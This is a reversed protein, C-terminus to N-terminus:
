YHNVHVNIHYKECVLIYLIEFNNQGQIRRNDYKVFKIMLLLWTIFLFQTVHTNIHMCKLIGRLEIKGYICFAIVIRYGPRNLLMTSIM